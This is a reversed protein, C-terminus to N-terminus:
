SIYSFRSLLASLILSLYLANLYVTFIYFSTIQLHSIHFTALQPVKSTPTPNLRGGAELFLIIYAQFQAKLILSRRERSHM